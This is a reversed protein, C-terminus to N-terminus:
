ENLMEKRLKFIKYNSKTKIGELDTTTIITQVNNDIINLLREKNKLDLESLIDDLLLIPETNIYKVIYDCLALKFAIMVMRKQGQSAYSALNMDDFYFIFDDKQPGCTTYHYIFDREKSGDLMEKIAYQNDDCCKLYELKINIKQNSLKFYYDGIRDNIFDIMEQRKNIIIRIPELMRENITELFIEDVRDNKLLNNRDKLLKTYTLIADLYTKSVKGIEIDLVKRRCKPSDTFIELDNPKFLVVNLKGIFDSTKKILDQNIYLIKGKNNIIIKFHKDKTNVEIKSYEKDRKILEFDENTRFSKTNSVVVLSELINTKGIGNDGIIINISPDLEIHFRNYNRYNFLDITKIIM